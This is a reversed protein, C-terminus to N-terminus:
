QNAPQPKRQDSQRSSTSINTNNDPQPKSKLETRLSIMESSIKQLVDALQNNGAQTAAANAQLTSTVASSVIAAVDINPALSNPSTLESRTSKGDPTGGGITPQVLPEWSM